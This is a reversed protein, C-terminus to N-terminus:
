FRVKAGNNSNDERSELVGLRLIEPYPKNAKVVEDRRLVILSVAGIEEDLHRFIDLRPVHLRM